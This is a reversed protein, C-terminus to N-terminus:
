AKILVALIEARDLIHQAVHLTQVLSTHHVVADQHLVHNIVVRHIPVHNIVRVDVRLILM